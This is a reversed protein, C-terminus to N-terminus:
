GALEHLVQLPLEPLVDIFGLCAPCPRDRSPRRAEHM